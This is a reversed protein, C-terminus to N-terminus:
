PLPSSPGPWRPPHGRHGGTEQRVGPVAPPLHERYNRHRPGRDAGPGPGPRLPHQLELTEGMAELILFTIAFTVPIGLATMLANRIGLFFLLIVSLLILGQVANSVLVDMSDRIQVTSDNVLDIRVGEPLGPWTEAVIGKVGDIVGIADGRPGQGGAPDRGTRRQHPGDDGSEDFTEYVRAVDGVHVVAGSPGVRRTRDGPRLGRHGAPIGRDRLPIGPVRDGPHRGPVTVNKQQVARLVESLSIGVAELRDRDADVVIRRDRDGVLDVSSVDKVELIRDRLSRAIRNLSRTPPRAPCPWRSSRCSTTPRSITWWPRSPVTRCSWGPSGPACTVPLPPRVRRQIYRRRVRGRVIALGDSAVSQIQKLSDIGQMEREIKVVVSREIDGASVGPYPVAINVWFFPVESFQEQPMRAISFTGLVLVTVLVITLLVSNETSFKPLNM